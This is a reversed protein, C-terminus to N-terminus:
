RARARKGSRAGRAASAASDMAETVTKIHRDRLTEFERVTTSVGLQKALPGSLRGQERRFKANAQAVKTQLEQDAHAAQMSRSLADDFVAAVGAPLSREKNQVSKFPMKPGRSGRRNGGSASQKKVVKPKQRKAM